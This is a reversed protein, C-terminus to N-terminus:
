LTGRAPTYRPPSLSCTPIEPQAPRPLPLSLLSRTDYVLNLVAPRPPTAGGARLEGWSNLDVEAGGGGTM